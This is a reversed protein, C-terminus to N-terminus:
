ILKILQNSKNLKSIKNELENIHFLSNANPKYVSTM